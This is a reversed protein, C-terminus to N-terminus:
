RLEKILPRHARNPFAIGEKAAKAMEKSNFGMKRFVDDASPLGDMGFDKGYM